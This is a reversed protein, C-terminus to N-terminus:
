SDPKAPTPRIPPAVATDFQTSALSRESSTLLDLIELALYGRTNREIKKSSLIGADHLETLAAGTAQASVGLFRQATRATVVPAEPLSRLLKATASDERPAPNLGKESRFAHLRARWVETLDDVDEALERAKVAAVEGATAFIDLWRSVGEQAVKSTASATYRYATLGGIYERSLTALVLSVPLVASETLGRRTLVTHILARGVRGNGDTFPHITEFQAHVVAAHILPSHVAGNLYAVLDELLGPVEEPSPPVFEADLPHWASGGIWNQVSRLGHHQAEDPLLARHLGELDAVTILDKDVLQTTAEQVVTLNNAVLKAQRSIGHVPESNGLEALAVQRASPTIGEILSSAIAESRLLFRSLSGLSDVGLSTLSRVKREIRAVKQGLLPDVVLPRETLLDPRYTQYPGAKRDRRSVGEFVRPEWTRKLWEAM